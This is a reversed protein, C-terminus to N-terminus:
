VFRELIEGITQHAIYFVEKFREEPAIDIFWEYRDYFEAIIDLPSDIYITKQTLEWRIKQEYINEILISCVSKKYSLEFRDLNLSNLGREYDQIESIAIDYQFERVSMFLLSPDM